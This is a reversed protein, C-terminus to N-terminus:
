LSPYPGFSTLKSSDNTDHQLFAQTGSLQHCIHDIEDPGLLMWATSLADAIAASAHVAWTRHPGSASQGTRPDLIHAGKVSTGSAGIACRKLLLPKTPTIAIDWGTSNSEPADLALISSGGAVLLARTADWTELEEAMRDLTFGKGIAGLDLAVPDNHVSVTFNEPDMILRGRKPSTLTNEPLVEGRQIDMQTGLGPDFAGGTLTQMRDALQLCHFTDASIKLIEGPSLSRIQSIESDERFRSLLKEFRDAIAFAAQAAQRAYTENEHALRVEFFTAMCEHQYRHISPKSM